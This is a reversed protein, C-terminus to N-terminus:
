YNIIGGKRYASVLTMFKLLPWLIWFSLPKMFPPVNNAWSWETLPIWRGNTIFEENYKICEKKMRIYSILFTIVCSNSVKECFFHVVLNDVISFKDFVYWMTHANTGMETSVTGSTWLYNLCTRTKNRRRLIVTPM